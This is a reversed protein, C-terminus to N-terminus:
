HFYIQHLQVFKLTLFSRHNSLLRPRLVLSSFFTQELSQLTFSFHSFAFLVGVWVWDWIEFLTYKSQINFSIIETNKKMMKKLM